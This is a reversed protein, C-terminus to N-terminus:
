KATLKVPNSYTECVEFKGNYEDGNVKIVFPENMYEVSFDFKLVVDNCVAFMIETPVTYDFEKEEFTLEHVIDETPDTFGIGNSYQGDVIKIM